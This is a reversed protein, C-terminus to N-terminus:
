AENEQAMKARAHHPPWALCVVSAVAFVLAILLQEEMKGLYLDLAQWLSEYMFPESWHIASGEQLVLVVCVLLAGGVLGRVMDEFRNM